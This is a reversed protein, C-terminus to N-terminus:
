LVKLVLVDVIQTWSNQILYSKLVPLIKVSDVYNMGLNIFSCCLSSAHDAVVGAGSGTGGAAPQFPGRPLLTLKIM